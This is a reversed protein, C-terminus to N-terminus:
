VANFQRTGPPVPTAGTLNPTAGFKTTLHLRWYEYYFPLQQADRSTEPAVGSVV